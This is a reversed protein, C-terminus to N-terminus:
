HSTKSMMQWSSREAAERSMVLCVCHSGEEQLRGCCAVKWLVSLVLLQSYSDSEGECETARKALICCQQSCEVLM